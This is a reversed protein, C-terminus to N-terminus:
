SFPASLIEHALHAQSGRRHPRPSPQPPAHCLYQLLHCASSCPQAPPASAKKCKVTRHLQWKGGAADFSPLLEQSHQGSCVALHCALILQPRHPVVNNFLMSLLKYATLFVSSNSSGLDTTRHGQLTCVIGCKCGDGTTTPLGPRHKFPTNGGGGGGGGAAVGLPHSDM